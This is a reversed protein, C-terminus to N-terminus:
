PAKQRILFGGGSNPAGGHGVRTTRWAVRMREPSRLTLEMLGKAGDSATWAVRASRSTSPVGRVQFNVEPPSSRDSIRYRARYTGVIADGDERLLCEMFTAPYEGSDPDPENAADYLWKGLFRSTRVQRTAAADKPPTESKAPSAEEHPVAQLSEVPPIELGPGQPMGYWAIATALGTMGILIRFWHHVAAQTWGSREPPPVVVKVGDAWPVLRRRAPGGSREVERRLGDDYERRRRRDALIAFIENVRRMQREAAARLKEDPQGDPHVLRVLTKYAQRIEETSANPVVGFEEYYNLTCDRRNDCGAYSM